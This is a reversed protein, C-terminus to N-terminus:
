DKEFINLLPLLASTGEGWGEGVPLPRLFCFITVMTVTKSKIM